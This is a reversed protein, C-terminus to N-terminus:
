TPLKYQSNTGFSQADFNLYISVNSIQSNPITLPLLIDPYGDINIDKIQLTNTAMIYNDPFSLTLTPNLNFSVNTYDSNCFDVEDKLARTNFYVSIGLNNAVIM